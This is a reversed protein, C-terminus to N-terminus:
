KSHKKISEILEFIAQSLQEKPMGVTFLWSKFDAEFFDPDKMDFLEFPLNNAKERTQQEVRSKYRGTAAAILKNESQNYIVGLWAM